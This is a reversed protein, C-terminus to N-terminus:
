LTLPIESVHEESHANAIIDDMSSPIPLQLFKLATMYNHIHSIKIPIPFTWEDTCTDFVTFMEEITSQQHIKDFDKLSLLGSPVITEIMYETFTTPTLTNYKEFFVIQEIFYLYHQILHNHAFPQVKSWRRQWFDTEELPLEWLEQQQYISHSITNKVPVCPGDNDVFQLFKHLRQDFIAYQPIHKFKAYKFTPIGDINFQQKIFHRLDDRMNEFLIIKSSFDEIFYQLHLPLRQDKDITNVVEELIYLTKANLNEKETKFEALVDPIQVLIVMLEDYQEKNLMSEFGHAWQELTLNYSANLQIACELYHFTMCEMPIDQFSAMGANLLKLGLEHDHVNFVDIPAMDQTADKLYSLLDDSLYRYFMRWDKTLFQKANFFSDFQRTRLWSSALYHINSM